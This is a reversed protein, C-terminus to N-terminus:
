PTHYNQVNHEITNIFGLALPRDATAAASFFHTLLDDRRCFNVYGAAAYAAQEPLSRGYVIFGRAARLRPPLAGALPMGQGANNGFAILDVTEDIDRLADCIAVNSVQDWNLKEREAEARTLLTPYGEGIKYLGEDVTLRAWPLPPDTVFTDVTVENDLILVRFNSGFPHALETALHTM